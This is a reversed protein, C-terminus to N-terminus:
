SAVFEFPLELDEALEEGMELIDEDNADYFWLVRVTGRDGHYAQLAELIDLLCKTSSTNLYSLHLNLTLEHSAEALYGDLWDFVPQFFEVANEPYSEGRLVLVGTAPDLEVGLTYKTPAISLREM